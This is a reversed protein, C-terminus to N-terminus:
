DFLTGSLADKISLELWHSLCWYCIVWPVKKKLLAQLGNRKGLNVNTGDCGLGVM